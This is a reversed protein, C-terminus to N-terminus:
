QADCVNQLVSGEYEVVGNLQRLPKAYLGYHQSRFRGKTDMECADARGEAQFIIRKPRRMRSMM